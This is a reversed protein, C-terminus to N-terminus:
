GSLMWLWVETLLNLTALYILSLEFSILIVVSDWDHNKQWLAEGAVQILVIYINADQTMLEDVHSNNHIELHYPMFKFNPLHHFLLNAYIICEPGLNGCLYVM